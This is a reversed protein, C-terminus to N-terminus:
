PKRGKALQGKGKANWIVSQRDQGSGFGTKKSNKNTGLSSSKQIAEALCLVLKRGRKPCGIKALNETVGKPSGAKGM